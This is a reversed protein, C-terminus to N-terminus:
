DNLIRETALKIKKTLDSPLLQSKFGVIRFRNKFLGKAQAEFEKPVNIQFTAVLRNSGRPKVLKFDDLKLEGLFLGTLRAKDDVSKAYFLNAARRKRKDLRAKTKSRRGGRGKLKGNIYKSKFERYKRTYNPLNSGGWDKNNLTRNFIYELVLRRISMELRKKKRQAIESTANGIFARINQKQGSM